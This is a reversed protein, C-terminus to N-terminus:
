LICSQIGLHNYYNAFYLVLVTSHVISEWRTQSVTTLPTNNNSNYTKYVSSFRLFNLYKKWTFATLAHSQLGAGHFGLAQMRCCLVRSKRGEGDRGMTAVAGNWLKKSRWISDIIWKDLINTNLSKGTCIFINCPKRLLNVLFLTCVCVCVGRFM